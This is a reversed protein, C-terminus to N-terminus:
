NSRRKFETLAGTTKRMLIESYGRVVYHHLTGVVEYALRKYLRRANRNFSSVCIFVNPARRFITKEAFNLLTTGVGKNRSRPSVCVSQIYGVFPGNMDLIIFGILGGNKIAVYIEKCEDGLTQLCDNYSRRLTIWPESHSMFDACQHAEARSRLKRIQSTEATNNAEM